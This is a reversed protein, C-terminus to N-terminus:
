DAGLGRRAVEVLKALSKARQRLLILAATSTVLPECSQRGSRRVRVAYGGSTGEEQSSRTALRTLCFIDQFQAEELAASQDAAARMKRRRCACVPFPMTATPSWISFHHPESFFSMGLISVFTVDKVEMASRFNSRLLYFKSFLRPIGKFIRKLSVIRTQFKEFSHRVM